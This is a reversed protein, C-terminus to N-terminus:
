ILLKTRFAKKGDWPLFVADIKTVLGCTDVVEVMKEGTSSFGDADFGNEARRRTPV